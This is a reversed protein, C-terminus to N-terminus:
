GCLNNTCKRWSQNKMVFSVSWIRCSVNAHNFGSNFKDQIIDGLKVKIDRWDPLRYEWLIHTYLIMQALSMREEFDNPWSLPQRSKKTVRMEPLIKLGRGADLISAVRPWCTHGVGLSSSSSKPLVEFESIPFQHLQGRKFYSPWFLWKKFCPSQVLCELSSLPGESSTMLQFFRGRGFSRKGAGDTQTQHQKVRGNYDLKFFYM